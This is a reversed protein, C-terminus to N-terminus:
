QAVREKWEKVVDMVSAYKNTIIYLEEANDYYGMKHEARLKFNRYEKLSIYTRDKEYKTWHNYNVKRYWGNGFKEEPYLESIINQLKDFPIEYGKTGDKFTELKYKEM